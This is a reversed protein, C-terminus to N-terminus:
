YDKDYTEEDQISALISQLTIIEATDPPHSSILIQIPELRDERDRAQSSRYVSGGKGPCSDNAPKGANLPSWRQSRKRM